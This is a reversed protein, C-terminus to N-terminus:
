VAEGILDYEFADTIRAKAFCGTELKEAHIYTVGDVEPAQFVTRGLYLNKESSEEVLVQVIRGIHQRNKNRSIEQQCRMLRDYREKAVSQSIHGSLRHSPLDEADSYVFVGLHDFQVNKV